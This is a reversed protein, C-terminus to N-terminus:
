SHVARSHGLLAQVHRRITAGATVIGAARYAARLRTRASVDASLSVDPVTRTLPRRLAALVRRSCHRHRSMRVYGGTAEHIMQEIGDYCYTSYDIGCISAITRFLTSELLRVAGGRLCAVFETTTLRRTGSARSSAYSLNRFRGLVGDGGGDVNLVGNDDQKRIRGSTTTGSRTAGTTGRSVAAAM